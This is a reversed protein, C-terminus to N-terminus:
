EVIEERDYLLQVPMEPFVRAVWMIPAMSVASHTGDGIEAAYNHRSGPLLRISFGQLIQGVSKRETKRGFLSM